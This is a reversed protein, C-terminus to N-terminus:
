FKLRRLLQANAAVIVTSVSMFVAGLAPPLIIGENALVGAALPIAIVNYGTAWILNEIMKRYTARSLRIIKVVDRPDNRVLIIGGSEIAVDTGAGIAIGVDASVLAPADNVGDGVMAVRKGHRSMERIRKEKDEPLVNAFYTDIGLERAVWRAVNESDGTMMAVQIGMAKLDTVAERSEPRIVDALAIAARVKGDEILYVLTHGASRARELPEHLSEPIDIGLSEMLRPGGIEVRRNDISAEVGRGPLAKFDSVKPLALGREEAAKVIARALKHESDKEVAAAAALTKDENVGPAVYVGVVGHEGKTLTGTKDFVVVDVNRAIELALRDRILLGNRAAITTSIAIVLPIALGLAHPCAIVLVTVTRELAFAESVPAISWAAFTIAGVSIAIVTLWFAARDALNQAMSRSSQAEAVLRMIGALTTNVGIGTVRVRLSGDGNVTGAIVKSGPSKSVPNSEGTIMAENVSSEGEIVVGDAPIKAGPRILVIDGVRIDDVPVIETRDNIIREAEDPMLKALENLAGRARGVARMEMWHGLLMIAVLTSLEWYLPEGPLGFTVALSYLFSVTIALSILTMMGPQRSKLEGAAGELFFIGGYFFIVTGLIFPIYESGSFQPPTFHLLMQIGKSYILVPITLALVVWFKRRLVDIDHGAHRDRIPALEPGGHMAHERHGEPATHQMYVKVRHLRKGFSFLPRGHKCYCM